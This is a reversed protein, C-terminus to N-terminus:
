PTASMRLFHAEMEWPRSTAIDMACIDMAERLAANSLNAFGEHHRRILHSFLRALTTDLATADALTAVMLHGWDNWQGDAAWRASVLDKYARRTDAEPMTRLRLAVDAWAPSAGQLWKEFRSVLEQREAAFSPDRVRHAHAQAKAILGLAAARASDGLECCRAALELVHITAYGAFCDDM